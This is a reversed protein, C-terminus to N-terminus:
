KKLEKNIKIIMYVLTALAGLVSFLPGAIELFGIVSGTTGIAVTRLTDEM